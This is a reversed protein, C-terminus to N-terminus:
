ELYGMAELREELAQEERDSFAYEGRDEIPEYTKTEVHVEGALMGSLARGDFREALPVGLLALLTPTVDMISPTAELTWGEEIDPGSAALLGHRTHDIRGEEAPIFTQGRPQASGIVYRPAQEVVIDPAFAVAPGEYVAERPRVQQFPATGDPGELNRLAGMLEARLDDYEAGSVLGDDYFSAENITVGTDVGSFGMGQYFARSAAEDIVETDLSGGAGEPAVRTALEYLGLASLGRELRQKTLGVRSLGSLLRGIPAERGGGKGDDDTAEALWSSGGPDGVTTAAYGSEHLWTNLAVSWEKPQGIGHDSVVFVNPERDIAGLVDAMCDDVREYIRRVNADQEFKHVAGDTKQFEVFLLDWEFRDLLALSLDRRRETLTLWEERLQAESVDAAESDAYVRYTDALGVEELLGEPHTTPPDPSLYGPVVAGQIDRPPHTVPVNVALTTLDAATTYDWLRRAGVDADSVPTTEHHGRQRRYFGFVGHKGPNVGTTLSTWAPPTTAPVCSELPTSEGDGLLSQLTPLAGADLWPEILEFCAGDLGFVVTPRPATEGAM